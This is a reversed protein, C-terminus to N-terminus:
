KDERIGVAVPFRPVGDESYEFFRLEATKGIYQDKNILIEKREAHSFKMGCGLINDKAGVWDFIFSGHDPHKEMPVVDKITLAIDIFDKYKLLQSDRKGVAYGDVGHRIITGEYGMALFKAHMRKLMALDKIPFTPVLQVMPFKHAISNLTINRDTFPIGPMILDYVHFKVTQTEPGRDKKILRMNEQFTKGHAYLEGDLVWQHEKAVIGEEIHSMTEIRKGKRSTM